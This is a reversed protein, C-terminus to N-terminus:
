PYIPHVKLGPKLPKDTPLLVSDGDSLGEMVQAKTYSSVGVKIPKWVLKDEASLAYVGTVDSERRLAEKPITLANAVVRSRIEADVNTGPLLDHDPNDIICSVEGVQRSALPVVETPLKDVLGKWQRGPLATWTITVPMGREIRGLDPEDVYLTVRVQDLRGINAVLDGPHVFSGLRLDFQYVIGDMPAQVVSQGLNRRALAASAEAEELKARVVPLETNSVLASRRRDLADIQLQAQEVKQRAVELEVRTAAQKDVLRQLAEYEKQANQLNARASALDSTIQTRQLQPGGQKLVQGEAQAAAIAANATALQATADSMDLSILEDGSHVQQGKQVFVKDVIGAREARASAWQLPEVKGNTSLSSVVTGRVVKAFPLEIPATKRTFGWILLVAAMVLVIILITRTTSVISAQCLLRVTVAM